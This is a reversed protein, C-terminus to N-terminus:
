SGRKSKRKSKAAAQAADDDESGYYNNYYYTYYGYSGYANRKYQLRNLVTGIVPAGAQRLLRVTAALFQKQTSELAVVLVVADVFTSIVQVDSLGTCPPSDIIVMDYDTAADQVIRRATASNLFETPNPPLPGATLCSVNEFETPFVAEAMTAAGKVVNTFGVDRSLGLYTHLAPRRLDGDVLLVRKGDMGIAIALNVSTTSKGEGKSASTVSIVRIQRDPSSFAINNRLLRFAELFSHPNDVTGILMQGAGGADARKTEPVATLTTLGTIRDVMAPDHIRSDLRELLVVCGIGALIGLCLFTVYNKGVEPYTPGGPPRARSIVRAYPVGSQEQIQLAYNKMALMETIRTYADVRESIETYAREREPLQALERQRNALINTLAAVRIQDIAKSAASEGVKGVVQDRMANRGKTTTTVITHSITKLRTEEAAIQRRLTKIEQSDDTYEQLQDTLQSQLEALHSQVAEFEPNQGIARTLQLEPTVLGALQPMQVKLDVLHTRKKFDAMERTAGQLKEIAGTLATKVFERAKHTALTSQVLDGHMYTSVLTNAMKAAIVPDYAKTTLTVVEADKDADVLYAWSPLSKGRYGRMMDPTSMQAVAEDILDPSELIQVQALLKHSTSLAALSKLMDAEGSGSEGGGGTDSDTIIEVKTTSEYVPHRTSTYVVGAAFMVATVALLVWKRRWFVEVQERPDTEVPESLSPGSYSAPEAADPIKPTSPM